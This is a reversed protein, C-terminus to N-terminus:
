GDLKLRCGPQPMIWILRASNNRRLVRSLLKIFEHWGQMLILSDDNWSGVEGHVIGSDM